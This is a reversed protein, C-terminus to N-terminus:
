AKKIREGVVSLEEKDQEKEFHPILHVHAHPVDIGLVKIEVWEPNLTKQIKEKIERVKEFYEGLNPVDWIWRFHEKPIVLTHGKAQPNIDLFALFNEDEWIKYAPIQGRVIKCFIDNEM